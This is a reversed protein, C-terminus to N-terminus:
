ADVLRTCALLARTNSIDHNGRILCRHMQMTAWAQPRRIQAGGCPRLRAHLLVEQSSSSAMHARARSSFVETRIRLRLAGFPADAADVTQVVVVLTLAVGLISAGIARLASMM